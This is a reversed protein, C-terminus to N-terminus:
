FKSSPAKPVEPNLLPAAMGFLKPVVANIYRQESCGNFLIDISIQYKKLMFLALSNEFPFRGKLCQFASIVEFRPFELDLLCRLKLYNGLFQKRLIPNFTECFTIDASLYRLIHDFLPMGIMWKMDDDFFKEFFNHQLPSLRLVLLQFGFLAQIDEDFYAMFSTSVCINLFQFEELECDHGPEELLKECMFLVDEYRRFLYLYLAEYCPGLNFKTGFEESLSTYFRTMYDNSIRALAGAVGPLVIEITSEEADETRRSYILAKNVKNDTRRFAKYRMMAALCYDAEFSIAMRPEEKIKLRYPNCLDFLYHVLLEPSLFPIQKSTNRLIKRRLLLFGAITALDEMVLLSNVKLNRVSTCPVNEKFSTAVESCLHITYQRHDIYYLLAALYIRSATQTKYSSTDYCCLSTQLCVISVM